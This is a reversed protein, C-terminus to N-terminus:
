EIFLIKKDFHWNNRLLDLKNCIFFIMWTDRSSCDSSYITSINEESSRNENMPIQSPGLMTKEQILEFTKMKWLPM